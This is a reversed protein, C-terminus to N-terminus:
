RAGFGYGGTKISYSEHGLDDAGTILADAQAAARELDRRRQATDAAARLGNLKSENAAIRGQLGAVIGQIITARQAHDKCDADSDPDISQCLHNLELLQAFLADMTSRDRQLDDMVKKIDAYLAENAAEERSRPDKKHEPGYFVDLMSKLKETEAANKLQKCTEDYRIKDSLCYRLAYSLGFYHREIRPNRAFDEFTALEPYAARLNELMRQGFRELNFHRLSKVVEVAEQVRAAERQAIDYSEKLTTLQQRGVELAQIANVLLDALILDGTDPVGMFSAYTSRVGALNVVLVSVLAIVVPRPLKRM